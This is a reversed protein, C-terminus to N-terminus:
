DCTEEGVVRATVGLTIHLFPHWGCIRIAQFVRRVSWERDVM